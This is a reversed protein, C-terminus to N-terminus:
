DDGAASLYRHALMAVGATMDHHDAHGAWGTRIARDRDVWVFGAARMHGSKADRLWEEIKAILETDPELVVAPVTGGVRIPVVNTRRRGM